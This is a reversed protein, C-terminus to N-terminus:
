LEYPTNKLIPRIYIINQLYCATNRAEVWFHKPTSHDNLMTKAMEQLSKNKREVVKNQQRTKPFSFNHHIGNEECFKEFLDNEFEGGHDSKILSICTGKENQIKKYFKYFTDFSEDKHTIFRVWTWRTYDDPIVLGYRCGSLSTTRTPGFTDLHLLKLPRSTSVINKANFSSKVKKGKQFAECLSDDQYSLKPLGRVLSHKQLKSM